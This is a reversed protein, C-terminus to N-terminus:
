GPCTMRKQDVFHHRACKQHSPTLRRHAVPSGQVARQDRHRRVAVLDVPLGVNRGVGKGGGRWERGVADSDVPSAVWAGTTAGRDDEKARNDNEYLPREYGVDASNWAGSSRRRTMGPLVRRNNAEISTDTPSDINFGWRGDWKGGGGAARSGGACWTRRGLSPAGLRRCDRLLCCLWTTTTGDRPGCIARGECGRRSTVGPGAARGADAV